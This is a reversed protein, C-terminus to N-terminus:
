IEVESSNFEYIEPYCEQAKIFWPSYMRSESRFEKIIIEDGNITINSGIYMDVERRVQDSNVWEAKTIEIPNPKPEKNTYLLFVACIEFEKIRKDYRAYKTYQYAPDQAIYLFKDVWKLQEKEIQLELEEKLEILARNMYRKKDDNEEMGEEGYKPHGAISGDWQLPFPPPFYTPLDLREASRQALYIQNKYNKIIVMLGRHLVGNNTHAKYRDIPGLVNDDKDVAIIM